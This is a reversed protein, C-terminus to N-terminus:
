ASRATPARQALRQYALPSIGFAKRFATSYHGHSSFGTALAVDIIRLAGAELLEFSRRLRLQLLYQHPTLGLGRRFSRLLHFPSLGFHEALADLCLGEQWRREILEATQQALEFRSRGGSATAGAAPVPRRRWDSVAGLLVARCLAQRAAVGTDEERGSWDLLRWRLYTEASLRAIPLRFRRGGSGLLALERDALALLEPPLEIDRPDGSGSMLPTEEIREDPGLLLVTNHGALLPQFGPLRVLAPRAPLRLRFGRLRTASSDTSPRLPLLRPSIGDAVRPHTTADM